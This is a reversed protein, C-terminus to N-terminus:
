LSTLFNLHEACILVCNNMGRYYGKKYAIQNNNLCREIEAVTHLEGVRECDDIMIIFDKSLCGPLIKLIDIRGYVQMDSALPADISILDFKESSFKESFNKYTRINDTGNYSSMELDLQVIETNQPFSLSNKVFNIWLPDNEVAIYRIDQNASVYQTIMRTTQGIGLELISKPHAENLTRYLVYLYLYSAAWRGPSFSKNLLWTSNSITNNFVQAWLIEMNYLQYKTISQEMRLFFDMFKPITDDKNTGTCEKIEAICQKINEINQRITYIDDETKQQWKQLSNLSHQATSVAELVEKEQQILEDYSSKFKDIIDLIKANESSVDEIKESFFSKLKEAISELHYFSCPLVKKLRNKTSM